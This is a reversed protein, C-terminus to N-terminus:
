TEARQWINYIKPENNTRYGACNNNFDDLKHQM